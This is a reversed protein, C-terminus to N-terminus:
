VIQPIGVNLYDLAFDQSHAFIQFHSDSSAVPPLNPIITEVRFAVATIMNELVPLSKGPSTATGGVM